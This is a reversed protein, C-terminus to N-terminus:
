NYLSQKTLTCFHTKMSQLILTQFAQQGRSNIHPKYRRQGQKTYCNVSLEYAKINAKSSYYQVSIDFRHGTLSMYRKGYHSFEPLNPPYFVM